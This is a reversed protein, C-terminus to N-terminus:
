VFIKIITIGAIILGILALLECFMKGLEIFFKKLEKKEKKMRAGM